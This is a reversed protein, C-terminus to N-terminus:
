RQPEKPLPVVDSPHFTGRWTEGKVILYAGRARTLKGRLGDLRTGAGVRIAVQDGIKHQCGYTKRIYEISM